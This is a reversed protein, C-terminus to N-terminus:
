KKTNDNIVMGWEDMKINKNEQFIKDSDWDDWVNKSAKCDNWTPEPTNEPSKDHKYDRENITAVFQKDILDCIEKSWQENHAYKTLIDSIFETFLLGHFHLTGRQQAEIVGYIGYPRLFPGREPNILHDANTKKNKELSIKIVSECLTKCFLDFVRAAEIPNDAIM